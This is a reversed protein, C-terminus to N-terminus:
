QVPPPAYTTVGGMRSQWESAPWMFCAGDLRAGIWRKGTHRGPVDDGVVVIGPWDDLRMQPNLLYDARTDAPVDQTAVSIRGVPEKQTPCVYLQHNKAYANLAAFNRAETPPRDFDNCYMRLCLALQKVNSSCSAARAAGYGRQCATIVLSGGIVVISMALFLEGLSFGRRGRLTM